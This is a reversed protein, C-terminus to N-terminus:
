MEIEIDGEYDTRRIEAGINLLRLLAERTPHGFFNKGVSVIAMDPSVAKLFEEGSSSKAGHHAVKLIDVKLRKGYKDVLKKEAKQSIDAAFLIRKVKTIAFIVISNDNDEKLGFRNDPLLVELKEGGFDITTGAKAATIKTGNNRAINVALFLYDPMTATQPYTKGDFSPFVLVGIKYRKVLELIGGSHDKDYHTIFVADLYKRRGIYKGINRVVEGTPGTDILYSYDAAQSLSSDGQGVDIFVYRESTSTIAFVAIAANSFIIFILFSKLKM